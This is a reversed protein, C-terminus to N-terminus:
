SAPLCYTCTFSLGAVCYNTHDQPDWYDEGQHEEYGIPCAEALRRAGSVALLTVMVAVTLFSRRM